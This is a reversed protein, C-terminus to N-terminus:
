FIWLMSGNLFFYLMNKIHLRLGSFTNLSVWTRPWLIVGLISKKEVLSASDSRTLLIDDFYVILIVLNSKTRRVFISHNSHCRHFDIGSITISFKEFWAWLTQKFGYIVKRLCCIKNEGQTIYGPPKEMYVEEKLNSYLFANKVDLQFLLWSLNVVISLLIKISNLRVVQSFTDFYDM